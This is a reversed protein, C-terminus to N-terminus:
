PKYYDAVNDKTVTVNTMLMEPTRELDCGRMGTSIAELLLVTGIKANQVSPQLATFTMRGESIAQLAADSGDNGTVVCNKIGAAELAQIAGLAMGDNCCWVCNINEAGYKTIFDRTISNGSETSWDGSVEEYITIDPYEAAMVDMIADDFEIVEMFAVPPGVMVMGGKGGMAEALAHAVIIGAEYNPSGVHATYIADVKLNITVVNIGAEEAKQVSAAVASGDIAHLFIGDYEQNILEEMIQNQVAPDSKCDWATYTVRDGYGELAEKCGQDWKQNNETGLDGAVYAIKFSETNLDKGAYTTGAANGGNNAPTDEKACACLTFVMLLVLLISLVKKM